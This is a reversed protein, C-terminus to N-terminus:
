EHQGGLLLRLYSDVVNELLFPKWASSSVEIKNGALSEEIGDVLAQTDEVKVLRGWKGNDLIEVPGSKCRTSVLPVQLAMAEILVTPLGERKSSLVFVSANKIYQYPNEVFGPMDIDQELDLEKVLGTLEQRLEGEGLILLRAEHNQRVHWFARILNSFDKADTLRGVSVIVPPSGVKFWPHDLVQNAKEFVDSTVVPNYITSVLDKTILTTKCFDDAVGDSVAVIGSSMPYLKRVLFLIVRGKLRKVSKKVGSVTTHVSVYIDTKSRALIKALLVVINAHDLASLLVRPKNKLLYSLLGPLCYIVRKRNLDVVNISSHLKKLNPGEASSLVFDVLIGKEVFGNALNVMVKEAGGGSLNPLFFAIKSEKLKNM